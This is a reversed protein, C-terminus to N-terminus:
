GGARKSVLLKALTVGLQFFEEAFKARVPDNMEGEQSLLDALVGWKIAWSLAYPLPLTPWTFCDGPVAPVDPAAVYLVKITRGTAHPVLRLTLNEEPRFIYGHVDTSTDEEWTSLFTDAQKHEMANVNSGDVEVRLLKILDTPLPYVGNTDAALTAEQVLVETAKLFQQLRRYYLSLVNAAGGFENFAACIDEDPPCLLHWQISQLEGGLHQQYNTANAVVYSARSYSAVDAVTSTTSATVTQTVAYIGATTYTHTVNTATSTNTASGDGFNWTVQRGDGSASNTFVVTLPIPGIPSNLAEFSAVAPLYPVAFYSTATSVGQVGRGSEATLTVNYQGADTVQTGYTVTVVQGVFTETSGGPKTIKWLRNQISDLTNNVTSLDTLKVVKLRSSPFNVLTEAKTFTASVTAPSISIFDTRTATSVGGANTVTLKVTFTGPISFYNSHTTYATTSGQAPCCSPNGLTDVVGWEWSTPSGTSQDTFTITCPAVGTTANATFTASPAAVFATTTFTGVSGSSDTWTSNDLSTQVRYWHQTSTALGTLTINQGFFEGTENGNSTQTLASSYSPSTLGSNTAYKIRYYFTGTFATPNTWTSGGTTTLNITATSSGVSAESDANASTVTFAPPASTTFTQTSTNASTLNNTTRTIQGRYEYTTSSLLGSLSRSISASSYGSGAQTSGAQIWTVDGQKRYELWITASSVNVNPYFTMALDASSSTVNASTPTNLVAANANTKKTGINQYYWSSLSLAAQCNTYNADATLSFNKAVSSASDSPCASSCIVLGGGSGDYQWDAYAEYGGSNGTWSVTATYTYTSGSGSVPDLTFNMSVAM